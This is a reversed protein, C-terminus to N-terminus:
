FRVGVGSGAFVDQAFRTGLRTGFRIDYQIDKSILYTMGLDSFQPDSQPIARDQFTGYWEIYWGTTDNISSGLVASQAWCTSIDRRDDTEVRNVQSMGTLYTNPSLSWAYVLNIAPLTHNSRAVGTGTPVTMGPVLAVKPLAGYQPVIGLKIGLYTDNLNTNSDGPANHANNQILSQGLRLELWDILLGHRISAEPYSQRSSNPSDTGNQSYTYGLEIQTVGRGVTTSADTFSPRDTVISSDLDLRAADASQGPWLFIFSRQTYRHTSLPDAYSKCTFFSSLFVLAILNVSHTLLHIATGTV